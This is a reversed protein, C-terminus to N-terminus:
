VGIIQPTLDLEYLTHRVEDQYIANMVVVIDPRYIELFQPSIIKQGTGAIYTGIKRPNVEVVYKLHTTTIGLTTLFSVSKSGGGWLVVKQGRARWESIANRWYSLKQPYIKTFHAIDDALEELPEENPHPASFRGNTPRAEIMIYQDDFGTYLDLIELKNQRFLYALSAPTFYSCHEYHIDWFAVDNLLHRTNPVQFFLITNLDLDSKPEIAQRVTNLFVATKPLHELTMKCVVFDGHYNAYKESYVDQIFTIGARSTLGVSSRQRVFAPDFGVGVNNGIECLTTIFEGQGCGIELITKGHLAYRDVLYVALEKEFGSFIHSHRRSNDYNNNYRLAGPSYTLNTIFGCTYCFGLTINGLPVDLAEQRSYLLQM